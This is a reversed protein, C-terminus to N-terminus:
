AGPLLATGLEELASMTEVEGDDVGPYLVVEVTIHASAGAWRGKDDRGVRCVLFQRGTEPLAWVRSIFTELM